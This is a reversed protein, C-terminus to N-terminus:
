KMLDFFSIHINTSSTANMVIPINSLLDPTFLNKPLKKNEPNIYARIINYTSFGPTFNNSTNKVNIIDTNNLKLLYGSKGKISNAIQNGVIIWTNIKVPANIKYPANFDLLTDPIM